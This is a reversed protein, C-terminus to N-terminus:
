LDVNVSLWLDVFQTPPIRSACVIITRGKQQCQKFFNFADDKNVVTKCRTAKLGRVLIKM